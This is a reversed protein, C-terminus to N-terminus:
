KMGFIWWFDFSQLECLWQSICIDSVAGIQGNFQNWIGYCAAFGGITFHGFSTWNLRTKVNRCVILSNLPKHWIVHWNLEISHHWIALAIAHITRISNEIPQTPTALECHSNLLDECISLHRAFCKGRIWKRRVEKSHYYCFCYKKTQVLCSRSLKRVNWIIIM